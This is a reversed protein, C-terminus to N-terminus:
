TPHFRFPFPLLKNLNFPLPFDILQLYVSIMCSVASVPIIGYRDVDYQRRAGVPHYVDETTVFCGPPWWSSCSVSDPPRFMRIDELSMAQFRFRDYPWSVFTFFVVQM